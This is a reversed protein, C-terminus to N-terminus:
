APNLDKLISKPLDSIKVDLKNQFDRSSQVLQALGAVADRFMAEIRERETVVRDPVQVMLLTLMKLVDLIHLMEDNEPLERCHRMIRFFEARVDDSLGRAIHEVMDKVPPGPPKTNSNM